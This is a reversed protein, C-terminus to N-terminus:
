AYESPRHNIHFIYLAICKHIYQSSGTGQHVIFLLFLLFPSYSVPRIRTTTTDHTRIRVDNLYHVLIFPAELSKSIAGYLKLGDFKTLFDLCM